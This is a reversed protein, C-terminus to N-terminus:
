SLAVKGSDLTKSTEERGLFFLQRLGSVAKSQRRMEQADKLGVKELRLCVVTGAVTKLAAKVM